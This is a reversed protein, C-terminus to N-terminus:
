LVHLLRVWAACVLSQQSSGFREDGAPCIPLVSSVADAVVTLWTTFPGATTATDPGCSVLARDITTATICPSSFRGQGPAIDPIEIPQRTPSLLANAAAGCGAALEVMSWAPDELVGRVARLPCIDLYRLMCVEEQGNRPQAELASPSRPQQAM